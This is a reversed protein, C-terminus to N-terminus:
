GLSQSPRTASKGNVKVTSSCVVSQHKGFYKLPKKMVVTVEQKETLDVEEGEVTKWEFERMMNAVFYELHLMALNLGPCMRRGARFADDQDGNEGCDLFREPRFAMPEEWVKEDMGIDAVTFNVITDKPIVYGEFTVEESVAHPLVFHGPPHRRLGELIVAKLYILRNLDEEGVEEAEKGVVRVIEEVLKQQLDQNKVLNAMIWQFSTSTSEIGATLFESCLSVM